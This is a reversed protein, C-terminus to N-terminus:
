LVFYSIPMVFFNILALKKWLVQIILYKWHEFYSEVGGMIGGPDRKKRQPRHRIHSLNDDVFTSTPQFFPFPENLPSFCSLFASLYFLCSKTTEAAYIFPCDYYENKSFIKSLILVKYKTEKKTQGPTLKMLPILVIKEYLYQKPLM